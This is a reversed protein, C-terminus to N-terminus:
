RTAFEVRITKIGFPRCYLVEDILPIVLMDAGVKIQQLDSGFRSLKAPLQFSLRGFVSSSRVPRRRGRDIISFVSVGVRSLRFTSSSLSSSRVLVIPLM